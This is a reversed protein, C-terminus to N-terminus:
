EIRDSLRRMSSSGRERIMQRGASAQIMPRIKSEVSVNGRPMRAMGVVRLEAPKAIPRADPNM